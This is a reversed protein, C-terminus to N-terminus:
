IWLILSNGSTRDEVTPTPIASHATLTAEDRVGIDNAAIAAGTASATNQRHTEAAIKHRVRAGTQRREPKDRIRTSAIAAAASYVIGVPGACM